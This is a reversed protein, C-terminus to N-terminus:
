QFQYTGILQAKALIHGEMTRVLEDRTLGPKAEADQDLAYLAFVFHHEKNKPPCPGNYGLNHFDNTGQVSGNEFAMEHSMNEPLGSTEEPIGYYLWLVSQGPKADGDIVILAFSKANAPPHTWLLLPSINLSKCTYKQPIAGGDPFAPSSIAFAAAAPQPAQSSAAAQFRAASITVAASFLIAILALALIKGPRNEMDM